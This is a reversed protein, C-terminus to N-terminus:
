INKSSGRSQFSRPFNAIHLGLRLGLSLGVVVLVFQVMMLSFVVKPGNPFMGSYVIAHITSGHWARM